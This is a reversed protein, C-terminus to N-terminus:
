IKELANFAEIKTPKWLISRDLWMILISVSFNVQAIVIGPECLLFFSDKETEIFILYNQHYKLNSFSCQHM